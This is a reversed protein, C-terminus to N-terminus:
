GGSFLIKKQFNKNDGHTHTHTHTPHPVPVLVVHACHLPWFSLMPEPPPAWSEPRHPGHKVWPWKRSGSHVVKQAPLWPLPLDAWVVTPPVSARRPERNLNTQSLSARVKIPCGNMMWCFTRVGTDVTHCTPRNDSLWHSPRFRGPTRCRSPREATLHWVREGVEM